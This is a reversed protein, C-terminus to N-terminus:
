SASDTSAHECTTKVLNYAREFREREVLVRNKAASSPTASKLLETISNSLNDYFQELINHMCSYNESLRKERAYVATLVNELEIRATVIAYVARREIFNESGIVSNLDNLSKSRQM